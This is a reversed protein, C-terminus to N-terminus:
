DRLINENHIAQFRVLCHVMSDQLEDLYELIQEFVHPFDRKLVDVIEQDEHKNTM